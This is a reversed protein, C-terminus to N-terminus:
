YTLKNYEQSLQFCQVCLTREPAVRHRSSFQKFPSAQLSGAILSNREIRGGRYATAQVGYGAGDSDKGSVGDGLVSVGECEM